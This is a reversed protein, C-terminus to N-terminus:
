YKEDNSSKSMGGGKYTFKGEDDRPHAAENWTAMFYEGKKNKM